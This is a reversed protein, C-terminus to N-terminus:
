GEKKEGDAEAGQQGLLVRAKQLYEDIQPQPLLRGVKWRYGLGDSRGTRPILHYHVHWVEQGAERGNALFINFDPGMTLDNMVRGVRKLALGLAAASQDDADEIRQVHRKPIVLTHWHAIPNIDLFALTHEDQPNPPPPHHFQCPDFHLSLSLM